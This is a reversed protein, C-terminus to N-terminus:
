SQAEQLGHEDSYSLHATDAAAGQHLNIKWFQPCSVIWARWTLDVRWLPGQRLDIHLGDCHLRAQVQRGDIFDFTAWPTIDPLRFRLKGGGPTLGSLQITEGGKLYSPLILKPHAVQHFAYNFDHPPRPARMKHWEHDCTGTHQQRWQSWPPVPGFGEPELEQHPDTLPAKPCEIQAALYSTDRRITYGKAMAGCGLPNRPDPKAHPDGNLAGGFALRYDLPVQTEGDKKNYALRWGGVWGERDWIWARPAHVRLAHSIKDIAIGVDWRQAAKGGPACADGVVTVDAFPKFPVLDGARIMPAGRPQGDYVDARVLTQQRALPLEGDATLDFTARAAIVAMVGGDRHNHEFGIAAFPTNNDALM